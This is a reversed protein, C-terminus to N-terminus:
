LMSTPKSEIPKVTNTAEDIKFQKEVEKLIIDAIIEPIQDPIPAFTCNDKLRQKWEQQVYERRGSMTSTVHIHHVEYMKSAEELLTEANVSSAQGEGFVKKIDHETLVTLTPEDGITILIGKRNQKEFSDLATFRSAFLWALLYSEGDNSGGGNEIVTKKLWKELLEDSTEFQAVQLPYKDCTHDGIAIFLVQLDRIGKQIIKEMITNLGNIILNNPIRGMSGTVDLAIIVSVVNPHDESFRSERVKNDALAIIPNLEPQIETYLFNEHVSKASRNETMSRVSYSASDYGGHGM